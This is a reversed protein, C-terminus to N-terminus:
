QFSRTVCFRSLCGCDIRGSLHIFAPSLGELDCTIVHHIFSMVDCVLLFGGGISSCVAAMFLLFFLLVLGLVLFCVLCFLLVRALKAIGFRFCEGCHSRMDRLILFM